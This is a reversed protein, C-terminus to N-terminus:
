SESQLLTGYGVCLDALVADDIILNMFEVGSRIIAVADNVLVDAHPEGAAISGSAAVIDAGLAPLTGAPLTDVLAAFQPRFMRQYTWRFFSERPGALLHGVIPHLQLAM